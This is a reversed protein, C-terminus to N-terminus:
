RFKFLIFGAIMRQSKTKLTQLGRVYPSRHFIGSIKALLKIM